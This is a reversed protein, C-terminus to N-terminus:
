DNNSNSIANNANVEAQPIPYVLKADNPEIITQFISEWNNRKNEESKGDPSGMIRNVGKGLRLIDLYAFGEGWLEIRRQLWVDNIIDGTPTYGPDRYQRVFNTLYAEDATAEAIILHMEEARMMIWDSACASVNVMEGNKTGFKLNIHPIIRQSQKEIIKKFNELAPANKYTQCSLMESHWDDDLWWQKRVDSAPIKDYLDTYIARWGGVSAYGGTYWSCFHSVWNQIPNKNWDTNASENAAWIVNHESEDCFGPEKCEELSLPTAGSLELCKKADNTADENQGMLLNVRARLGYAVAQNVTGNDPRKFQGFITSNCVYNLDDMIFQFVERVTKRPNNNYMSPDVQETTIPVCLKDEHGIYTGQYLQALISYCYARITKAQCLVEEQIQSHNELDITELVTNTARIVNYLTRWCLLNESHTSLRNNPYLMAYNFWNYGYSIGVWDQGGAEMVACVTPIGWDNHNNSSYVQHWQVMQTYMALVDATATADTKSMAEAKDDATMDEGELHTTMWDEDCAVFAMMVVM